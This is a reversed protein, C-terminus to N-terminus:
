RREGFEGAPEVEGGWDLDCDGRRVARHFSSWPWDRVRTVLGHKMPNVHCYDIHRALDHEDRIMHEWFRRQWIAREGPRRGRGVDDGRAILAQTFEVKVRRWRLSFDDDGEPLAWIAHLHNPLVVMAEIRFPHRVRVSVVARRLEDVREVLLRSRRDALDVTFFWTAGPVRLRRYNPM